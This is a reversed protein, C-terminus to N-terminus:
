WMVVVSRVVERVNGYGLGVVEVVECDKEALILVCKERGRWL